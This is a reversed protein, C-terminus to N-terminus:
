AVKCSRKFRVLTSKSVGTIAEVEKYTHEELLSLAHKLEEENFKPPRGEKFNERSRAIEKGKTTREIILDKEYQAFALLMNCVLMNVPNNNLLGVGLVHIKINNSILNEILNTTEIFNRGLRDPKTVLVTDGAKLVLLMKNLEPRDKKGGSCIDAFIKKAGNAELTKLQVEMGNGYSAQSHTSVRAYGYIM